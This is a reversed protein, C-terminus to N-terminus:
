QQQGGRTTHFPSFLSANTHSSYDTFVKNKIYYGKTDRENITDM